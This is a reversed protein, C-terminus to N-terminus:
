ALKRAVTDTPSAIDGIAASLLVDQVIAILTVPVKEEELMLLTKTAANDEM